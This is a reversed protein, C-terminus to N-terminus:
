ARQAQASVREFREAHPEPEIGGDYTEVIQGTIEAGLFFVNASFYVWLLIAMVSGAAGQVTTAGAYAFYLSILYSGLNFMVATVAAGIFATRWRIKADPLVRYIMAFLTTALALGIGLDALRWAVGAFPLVEEAVRHVTVLAARTLMGTMLTGGVVLIMTFSWLRKRLVGQVRGRLSTRPKERVNWIRNLARQLQVFVKSAGYLLVGGGIVLGVPNRTGVRIREIMSAAVTAAELGWARSLTAVVQALTEEEGFVLGATWVAVLVLPAMSLLTYFAIAGSLLTADDEEFAALARGVLRTVDTLRM